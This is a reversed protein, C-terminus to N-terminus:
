LTYIDRHYLSLSMIVLNHTRFGWCVGTYDDEKVMYPPPTGPAPTKGGGVGGVEFLRRVGRGHPTIWYRGMYGRVWDRKAPPFFLAQYGSNACAGSKYTFKWHIDLLHRRFMPPSVLRSMSQKALVNQGM